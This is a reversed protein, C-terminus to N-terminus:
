KRLWSLGPSTAPLGTARPTTILRLGLLAVPNIDARHEIPLNQAQAQWTLAVEDREVALLDGMVEAEAQQRQEHSLAAGDDAEAGILEDLRKILADKHLWAILAVTDPVEAFALSRRESHVESTQRQTQFEVPGDLEVLRSVSPEGRQALTEIQARMRQKAYTSPFPASRIRHADARLERGRRRLRGIADIISEDKLLKPPEVEIEAIQCNGPMGRRLFDEVTVLAGSAAQFAESRVKQLETLRTFEATAKDLTRQAEKVLPHDPPLNKGFDQPHSVLTNLANAADTKALSAERVTEFPPILRHADDKRLRLKRLKDAALPPLGDIPDPLPSIHAGGFNLPQPSAPGATFGATGATSNAEMTPLSRIVQERWDADSKKTM